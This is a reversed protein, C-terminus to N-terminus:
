RFLIDLNEKQITISNETKTAAFPIIYGPMVIPFYIKEGVDFDEMILQIYEIDGKSLDTESKMHSHIIGYFSIGSRRWEEITRNLYDVNPEYVAHEDSGMNDFCFKCVVGDQGGIIGGCEPPASPFSSLIGIFIENTMKM